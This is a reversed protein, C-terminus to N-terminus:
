HGEEMNQFFMDENANREANKQTMGSNKYTKVRQNYEMSNLEDGVPDFGACSTAFCVIFILSLGLCIKKYIKM